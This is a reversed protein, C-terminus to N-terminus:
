LKKHFAVRGNKLLYLNIKMETPIESKGTTRLIVIYHVFNVLLSGYGKPVHM